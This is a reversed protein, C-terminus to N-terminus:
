RLHSYPFLDSEGPIKIIDDGVAEKVCDCNRKSIKKILHLWGAGLM